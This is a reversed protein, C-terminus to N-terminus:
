LHFCLTAIELPHRRMLTLLHQMLAIHWVRITGDQGGASALLNDGNMGSQIQVVNSTHSRVLTSSM